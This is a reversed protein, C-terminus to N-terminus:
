EAILFLADMPGLALPKDTPVPRGNNTRPDQKPSGQIRCFSRGPFRKALDIEVPHDAPNALVAGHEFGRVIVDPAATAYVQQIVVPEPGEVTVVLDLSKGTIGKFYFTSDFPEEGVWSMFEQPPTITEPGAPDTIRVGGWRAHDTTSHDKPGCDAVFSLRIREGAWRELSVEHPMWRFAKQHHEFIKTGSKAPADSGAENVFVQFLVGDSREPSLEGMGTHLHLVGGKPVTPERQWYTYGTRPGPEDRKYPPHTQYAPLTLDGITLADRFLVGAGSEPDIATEREGRYAMGGPPTEKRILISEPLLNRCWLRRAINAPEGARPQATARISVFLNSNPTPIKELDLTITGEGPASPTELHLHGNQLSPESTPSDFHRATEQTIEGRNSGFVIPAEAALRMPPTIPKGLWGTRDATGMRLEDWIGYMEGPETPAGFSYCTAADTFTCIAMVVRHTSFPVDPRKPRGPRDGPENYKHNVYNLTPEAAHDRWYFHRNLGGSWDTIEKDRLHPWGESEIGNLIGFARQNRLSMGDAMILRDPGLQDRLARCFRVVGVGYTNVPEGRPGLDFIGFDVEGDANCDPGRKASGRLEHHLVDFELGDFAALRGGALFRNGLVECLVDACTRGQKDRPCETSYNYYWLLHSRGGWPGESVHAAAYAKGAPLGIPETGYAGRRVRITGKKADVSVLQVQESHHWDPKGDRLLCLGIDEHADRYRGINTRFLSPDSVAIETIGEEAPVDKEILAGNYYIFHGAFFPNERTFDATLPAAPQRPSSPAASSDSPRPMELFDFRPDRANGNFHLLVAQEPHNRKFRTFYEINHVSRGPVEEELVKGMIGMLRSFSADWREYPIGRSAYGESARFFFARPYNDQLIELKRSSPQQALIPSVAFISLLVPIAVL